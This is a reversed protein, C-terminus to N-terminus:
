YDYTNKTRNLKKMKEGDMKYCQETNLYKLFTQRSHQYIPPLDIAFM